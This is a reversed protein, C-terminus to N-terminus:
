ARRFWQEREPGVCVTKIPVEVLQELREVYSQAAKPLDGFARVDATPSKWGAHEELVPEVRELMRADCEVYRVPQGNLQYGTSIQLTALSDLVDLRTLALETAGNLATTFRVVEADFWGCRRPRGTTAGYEQGADRLEQGQRGHLETPLPGNGVRTSYAKTVCIIRDIKTPPIGAGIAAAGALPSAATCFPYASWDTDLMAGQAGELLVRRGAAIAGHLVDFPECVFPQVAAYLNRYTAFIGDADLAEGGLAEILKNKLLLQTELKDRFAEDDAMDALRIGNYSVKDAFAPGIGRRTTGISKPGKADEFLGDLLKHYPMVVHCRPSILLRNEVEV